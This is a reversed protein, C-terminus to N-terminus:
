APAVARVASTCPISTVIAAPAPNARTANAITASRTRVGAGAWTISAASMSSSAAAAHGEPGVLSSKAHGDAQTSTTRDGVPTPTFVPWVRDVLRRQQRTRRPIGSNILHPSEGLSQEFEHPNAL